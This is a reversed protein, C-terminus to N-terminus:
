CGQGSLVGMLSCGAVLAPVVRAAPSPTSSWSSALLDGLLGVAVELDLAGELALRVAGGGVDLGRLGGAVVEGSRASGRVGNGAPLPTRHQGYGSGTATVTGRRLLQQLCRRHQEGLAAVVGDADVVDARRGADASGADVAV